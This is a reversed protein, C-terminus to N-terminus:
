FRYLVRYFHIFELREEPHVAIKAPINSEIAIINTYYSFNRNAVMIWKYNSDAWYVNGSVWDVSISDIGWAMGQFLKMHTQTQLFHVNVFHLQVMKYKDKGNAIHKSLSQREGTIGSIGM